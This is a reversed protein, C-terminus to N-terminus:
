RRSPRLEAPTGNPSGRKTNEISGVPLNTSTRTGRPEAKLAPSGIPVNFAIAIPLLVFLVFVILAGYLTLVLVGLNRLVGLGSRGVTVAIAAGIGFPAFKMVIAVFKFMVESLSECFSLMVTKAPGQVQSLAVAFIIAFFVIQLVENKAAADAFSQPVTHELVGSVTTKTKALETGLETSARGLNVGVGPKVLNVALLGVVLAITTVIEFYVISRFALKGVRKMDDGHGAIGVVLTGFLLPVILSKIMRLFVTSLVQLDTAQFGTQGAPRDPFVYGVAVGVIMAIVIQQTQTIRRLGTRPPTPAGAATVGATM